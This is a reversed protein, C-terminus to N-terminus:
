PIPSNRGAGYKWFGGVLLVLIDDVLHEVLVARQAGRDEGVDEALVKHADGELGGAGDVGGAHEVDVVVVEVPGVVGLEDLAHDRVDGLPELGADGDVADARLAMELGALALREGVGDLREGSDVDLLDGHRLEIDLVVVGSVVDGNDLAAELRGLANTDGDPTNTIIHTKGRSDKM